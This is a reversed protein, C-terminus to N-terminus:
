PGSTEVTTETDPRGGGVLEDFLYRYDVMAQRVQETTASDEEIAVAVVHASRFHEVLEPHDVSILKAREEFHEVPYGRDRMVEMVLLDADRLGTNPTSVFSAQATDWADTFGGASTWTSREFRCNLGAGCGPRCNRRVVAGDASGIWCM